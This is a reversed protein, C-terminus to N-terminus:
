KLAEMVAPYDDRKLGKIYTAGFRKMLEVAAKNGHRESYAVVAAQIQDYTYEPIAQGVPDELMGVGSAIRPPTSVPPAPSVPDGYPVINIDPRWAIIELSKAISELSKAIRELVDATNKDM